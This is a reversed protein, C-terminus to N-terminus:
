TGVLKRRNEANEGQLRLYPVSSGLNSPPKAENRASNGQEFCKCDGVDLARSVAPLGELLGNGDVVHFMLSMVLFTLMNELFNMKVQTSHQDSTSLTKMNCQRMPRTVHHKGNKISHLM